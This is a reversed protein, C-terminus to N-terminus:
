MLALVSKAAQRGPACLLFKFLPRVSTRSDWKEEMVHPQKQYYYAIIGTFGFWVNFVLPYTHWYWLLFWLGDLGFLVFLELLFTKEDGNDGDEEENTTGDEPDEVGLPDDLAGPRAEKQDDEGDQADDDAEEL